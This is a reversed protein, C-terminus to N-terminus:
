TGQFSVPIWIGQSERGLLNLIQPALDLVHVKVLERYNQQTMASSTAYTSRIGLRRKFVM